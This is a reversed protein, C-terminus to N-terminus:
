HELVFSLIQQMHAYRANGNGNPIKKKGDIVLLSSQSDSSFVEFTFARCDSINDPGHKAPLSLDKKGKPWLKHTSLDFLAPSNVTGCLDEVYTYM